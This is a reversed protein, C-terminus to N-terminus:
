GKAHAASAGRARGEGSWREMLILSGLSAVMFAPESLAVVTQGFLVPSTAVM